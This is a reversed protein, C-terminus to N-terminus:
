SVEVMIAPYELKPPIGSLDLVGLPNLSDGWEGLVKFRVTRGHPPLVLLQM